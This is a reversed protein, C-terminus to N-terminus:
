WLVPSLQHIYGMYSKVCQRESERSPIVWEMQVELKFVVALQVVPNEVFQLNVVRLLDFKCAQIEGISDQTLSPQDLEHFFLM